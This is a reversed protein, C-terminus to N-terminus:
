LDMGLLMKIRVELAKRFGVRRSYIKMFTDDKTKPPAVMKDKPQMRSAHSRCTTVCNGCGICHELNIVAKGNVITRAEMQCRKVCTGCGVCVSEDVVAFYNSAFHDSWKPSMKVSKLIGCCDGCCCCIAEPHKSNEPQLIFGADQAEDLIKLVEEKTVYRGIGMDVYQRAHDAGIQLCTERIASHKCPTGKKDAGKRCVCAAVAMLGPAQEVLQRVDDYSGTRIKGAHPISKAVPITRLQPVNKAGVEAKHFAEHMYEDHAKEIEPTIRGVAFDLTGGATFGANKYHTEKFGERYVLLTGKQFMEDLNKQLQERTLNFGHKNARKLIRGVPELKHPSLMTALRAEEPSYFFKLMRIEAGSKTEPFGVPGSDLHKQLDRYVQNVSNTEITMKYGGDM